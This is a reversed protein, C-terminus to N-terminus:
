WSVNIMKRGAVYARYGLQHLYNLAVNQSLKKDVSILYSGKAVIEDDAFINKLIEDIREETLVVREAIVKERLENKKATMVKAELM